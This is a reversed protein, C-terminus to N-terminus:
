FEQDPHFSMIHVQQNSIDDTLRIKIYISYGFPRKMVYGTGPRYRPNTLEVAELGFGSRLLDLIFDIIAYQTTCEGHRKLTSRADVEDQESMFWEDDELLKILQARIARLEPSERAM